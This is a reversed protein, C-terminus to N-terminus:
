GRERYTDLVSTAAGDLTVSGPIWEAILDSLDVTCSLDVSVTATEGVPRAFETTDITVAPTCPISNDAVVSDIVGNAAAEADAANRALSAARAASYAAQDITNGAIAVRGAMVVTAIVGLMVPAFIVLELTASGRDRDGRRIM